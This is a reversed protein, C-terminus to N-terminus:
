RKRGNACANATFRLVGEAEVRATQETVVPGSLDFILCEEIETDPTVRATFPLYDTVPETATIDDPTPRGNAERQQVTGTLWVGAPGEDGCIVRAQEVRYRQMDGEAPHLHLHGRGAGNGLVNLNAKFRATSGDELEVQQPQVRVAALLGRDRAATSGPVALLILLGLLCVSVAVIACWNRRAPMAHDKETVRVNRQM